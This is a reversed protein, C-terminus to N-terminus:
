KTEKQKDEIYKKNAEKDTYGKEMLKKVYQYKHAGEKCVVKIEPVTAGVPIGIENAWSPWFVDLASSIKVVPHKLEPLDDWAMCEILNKNVWHLIVVSDPIMLYIADYITISPLVKYRYPSDWVREMFENLARLTLVCYSQTAANGVSRAEKKAGYPMKYDTGVVCKSLLPTRIIAGFALSVHGCSKAKEVLGAAWADAVVYLEHYRAEIQKAQEEPFGANKVMTVWTGGYQLAFSPGKSKQRLAKYKKKIANISAVNGPIIDPMEESFYAQARMCHGCFGQEYVALKNPDKTLLANVKDEIADFDSGCFLWGKTPEFCAKILKGFVSGSPLNLLNRTNM